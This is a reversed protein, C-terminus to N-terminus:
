CWQAGTLMIYFIGGLVIRADKQPMGIKNKKAPIVPAIKNWL